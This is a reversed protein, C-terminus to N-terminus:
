SEYVRPVHASNTSTGTGAGLNKEKSWSWFDARVEIGNPSDWRQSLPNKERLLNVGLKSSLHVECPDGVRASKFNPFMDLVGNQRKLVTRLFVNLHLCVVSKTYLEGVYRSRTFVKM